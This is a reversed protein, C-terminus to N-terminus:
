KGYIFGFHFLWTHFRFVGWTDIARLVVKLLLLEFYTLSHVLQNVCTPLKDSHLTCETPSHHLVTVSFKRSNALQFTRSPPPASAIYLLTLLFFPTTTLLRSPLMWVHLYNQLINPRVVRNRLVHQCDLLALWGCCWPIFPFRHLCLLWVWM